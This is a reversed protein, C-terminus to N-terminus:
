QYLRLCRQAEGAMGFLFCIELFREMMTHFLPQDLARIAVIRVPGQSITLKPRRWILVHDAELAM